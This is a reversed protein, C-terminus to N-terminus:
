VQQKSLVEEEEEEVGWVREGVRNEVFDEEVGFNGLVMAVMAVFGDHGNIEVQYDM